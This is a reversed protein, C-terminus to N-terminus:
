VFDGSKLFSETLVRLEPRSTFLPIGRKGMQEITNGLKDGHNALVKLEFLQRAIEVYKEPDMANGKLNMELLLGTLPGTVENYWSETHDLLATLWEREREYRVQFVWDLMGM